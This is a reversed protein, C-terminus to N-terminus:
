WIWIHQNNQLYKLDRFISDKISTLCLLYILRHIGWYFHLTEWCFLLSFLMDVYFQITLGYANIQVHWKYVCKTKICICHPTCQMAKDCNKEGKLLTTLTEYKWKKKYAVNNHIAQHVGTWKWLLFNKNNNTTIGFLRFKVKVANKWMCM